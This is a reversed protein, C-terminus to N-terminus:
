MYYPLKKAINRMLSQQVGKKTTLFDGKMKHEYSWVEKGTKRDYLFLNGQIWNTTTGFGIGPLLLSRAVAVGVSTGVSTPRRVIFESFLVADVDLVECLENNDLQFYGISDSIEIGADEIKSRILDAGLIKLKYRKFTNKNFIANYLQVNLYNAEEDDLICESMSQGNCNADYVDAPIIAVTNHKKVIEKGGKIFSTKACSSLVFVFLICITILKKM